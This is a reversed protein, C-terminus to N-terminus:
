KKKRQFTIQKWGVLWGVLFFFFAKLDHTNATNNQKKLGKLNRPVNPKLVSIFLHTHHEKKKKLYLTFHHFFLFCCINSKM